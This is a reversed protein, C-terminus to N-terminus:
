GSIPWVYILGAPELRHTVVRYSNVIRQPESGLEAEITELRREWHRQDSRLQAHEKKSLKSLDLAPVDVQDALGPILGTPEAAAAKRELKGLERTRQRLTANIRKRQGRLVDKLAQAEKGGRQKLLEAAATLATESEQKLLPLLTQVDHEAMTQFRSTDVNPLGRSEAEKLADQLLRWTADKTSASLPQLASQRDDGPHWDAVVTILEDHLRAAGQGFLSLRGLM